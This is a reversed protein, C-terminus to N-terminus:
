GEKPKNANLAARFNRDREEDWLACATTKLAKWDELNTHRLEERLERDSVGELLRITTNIVRELSNEAILRVRVEQETPRKAM